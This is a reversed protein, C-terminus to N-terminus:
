QECARRWAPPMICQVKRSAPVAWLGDGAESRLESVPTLEQAFAPAVHVFWSTVGVTLAIAALSMLAARKTITGTQALTTM